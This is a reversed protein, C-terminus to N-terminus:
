QNERNYPEYYINKNLTLINMDKQRSYNVADMIKSILFIGLGGVPRDESSLTIDPHQHLSPNFPIGNDKIRITLLRPILSISIKIEHKEKDHFGYFIINSLAEELVLNIHLILQEPLKWKGALKEIKEALVPLEMIQNEIVYYKRKKKEM